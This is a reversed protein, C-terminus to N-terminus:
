DLHKSTARRARDNMRRAGATDGQMELLAALHALAEMHDPDLYLTRRYHERAELHHGAADSVLGLLYFAAATPRHERMHRTCLEAAEHLRGQDALRAAEELLDADSGARTAAASAPVVDRRRPAPSARGHAQNHAQVRVPRAPTARAKSMWASSLTAQADPKSGAPRSPSFVRSTQFAPTSAVKRFAFALPMNASIMNERVLVGGESPGVFLVGTEKLLRRLVRVAQAQEADGFYILVNRCFIFDYDSEDVLLAPDFLNGHRFRVTSRVTDVVAHRKGVPLFHRNRFELDKGRFSNMGYAGRQAAAISRTCIDLADIHFRTPPVGADLLAMAMSYPEEGTSCPLSLIRLRRDSGVTQSLALRALAKFAEGDRFFWTEPVIVLEVLEQLEAPSRNVQRWYADMDLAGSAVCRERVARQIIGSGVSRVNLGMTQKLLTEFRAFENVDDGAGSVAISAGAGAAFGNGKDV